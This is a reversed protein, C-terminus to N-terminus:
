RVNNIIQMSVDNFMSMMNSQMGYMQSRKQMLMQIETSIRNFDNAASEGDGGAAKDQEGARSAQELDRLKGEIEGDLDDTLGAFLLAVKAELSLSPDDVISGVAQEQGDPQGLGVSFSASWGLLGFRCGLEVNLEAPGPCTEAFVPAPGCIQVHAFPGWRLEAEAQFDAGSSTLLEGGRQVAGLYNGMQLDAYLGAMKGLQESGTLNQVATEVLDGLIMRPDMKAISGIVGEM